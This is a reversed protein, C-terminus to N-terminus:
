VEKYNEWEELAYWFTCCPMCACFQLVLINLNNMVDSKVYECWCMKNWDTTQLLLCCTGIVQQYGGRLSCSIVTCFIVRQVSMATFVQFSEICKQSVLCQNPMGAWKSLASNLKLLVTKEKNGGILLWSVPIM